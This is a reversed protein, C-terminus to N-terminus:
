GPQHTLTRVRVRPPNAQGALHASEELVRCWMDAQVWQGVKALVHLAWFAPDGARAASVIVFRVRQHTADPELDTASFRIWGAEMHGERTGLLLTRAGLERVEVPGDWPGALSVTLHQGVRTIPESFVAYSEPALENPDGLLRGIVAESAAAEATIVLEYRRSVVAGVGEEQTQREQRIEPDVGEPLDRVPQDTTDTHEIWWRGRLRRRLLALPPALVNLQVLNRM